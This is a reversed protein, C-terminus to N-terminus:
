VNGSQSFQSYKSNKLWEWDEGSQLQPVYSGPSPHVAVSSVARRKRGEDAEKEKEM